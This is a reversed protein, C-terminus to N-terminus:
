FKEVVSKAVIQEVNELVFSQFHDPYSPKMSSCRSRVDERRGFDFLVAKWTRHLHEKKPSNALGYFIRDREMMYQENTWKEFLYEFEEDGGYHVVTQYIPTRMFHPIHNCDVDSLPKSGCAEKTQKFIKRAYEICPEYGTTCVIITVMGRLSDQFIPVDEGVPEGIFKQFLPLYLHRIFLQVIKVETRRVFRALMIEFHSGTIQLPFYETEKRLYLALRFVTEFSLEGIEAFTFGDDLLRIRSSVPVAKPDEHLATTIRDYTEVDYRIRGYMRGERDLVLDRRLDLEVTGNEVLWKVVTRNTEQDRVFMPIKWQTTDNSKFRKILPLGRQHIWKEVVDGLSFNQEFLHTRTEAADHVSSLAGILDEHDGNGYELNKIYKRLGDRFIDEGVIFEFMRLLGAAKKYTIINFQSDPNVIVGYPTTLPMSRRSQDYRYSRANYDVAVEDTRVTIREAEDAAKMGIMTAFGENLWLTNWWKMTVLNGFWQHAVEHSLLDTIQRQDSPSYLQSNYFVHKQRCIILGWNEMAAVRM